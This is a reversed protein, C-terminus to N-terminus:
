FNSNKGDERIVIGIAGKRLQPNEMDCFEIGFDKDTIKAILNEM